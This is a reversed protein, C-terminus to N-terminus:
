TKRGSELTQPWQRAYNLRDRASMKAFVDDSVRVPPSGSDLWKQVVAAAAAVEPPPTNSM